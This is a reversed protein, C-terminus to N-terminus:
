ATMCQCLGAASEDSSSQPQAFGVGVACLVPLDRVFDEAMCKLDHVSFLEFQQFRRHVPIQFAP